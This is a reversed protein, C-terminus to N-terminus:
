GRKFARDTGGPIWNLVLLAWLMWAPNVPHWHSRHNSSTYHRVVCSYGNVVTAAGEALRDPDFLPYERSFIFRGWHITKQSPRYYPEDPASFERPFVAGKTFYSTPLWRWPAYPLQLWYGTM